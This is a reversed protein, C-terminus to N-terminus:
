KSVFAGCEVQFVKNFNPLALVLATSLKENILSFSQEVEKGWSFKGKKVCETIPAM